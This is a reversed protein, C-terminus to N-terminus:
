RWCSVSMVAGVTVSSAHLDAADIGEDDAVVESRRPGPQEARDAGIGPEGAIALEAGVPDSAAQEAEDLVEAM